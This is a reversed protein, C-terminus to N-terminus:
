KSWGEDHIGVDIVVRASRVLDWQLKGLYAYPDDYLGLERGLDESYAGWGETYGPYSFLARFRPAPGSPRPLTREYHHGPIAEHLFLWEMARRDYRGGSFNYYFVGDSWYGP